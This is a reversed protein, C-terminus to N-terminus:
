NKKGVCREGELPKQKAVINPSLKAMEANRATYEAESDDAPLPVSASVNRQHNNNSGPQNLGVFIINGMQWTVNEKYLSFGADSSQRTLTIPRQGLSQNSTFFGAGNRIYALRETPNYAGNNTRHCDTWENDGPLYVVANQYTGFLALNKAYVSDAGVLDKDPNGGQCWTDGAKIDGMHATFQVKNHANIDAIMANYELSPYTQVKKTGVLGTPAYPVDGILAFDFQNNRDSNGDEARLYGVSGALIVTIGFATLNKAFAIKM